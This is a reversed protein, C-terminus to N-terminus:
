KPQQEHKVRLMVVQQHAADIPLHEGLRKAASVRREIDRVSLTRRLFLAYLALRKGRIEHAIAEPLERIVESKELAIAVPNQRPDTWAPYYWYVEGRDDVGFVMLKEDNAQTRYAFALEGTAPITREVADIGLRVNPERGGTVRYVRLEPSRKIEGGRASFGDDGANPPVSRMPIVMVAILIVAAAAVASAVWSAVPRREREPRLGLSRGLREEPSAAKPDLDALLLRRNYYERGVEDEALRERLKAEDAPAIQGEFHRDIWRRMESSLTGQEVNKSRM